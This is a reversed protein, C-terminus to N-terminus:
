ALASCPSLRARFEAFDGGDLFSQVDDITDTSSIPIMLAAGVGEVASDILRPGLFLDCRLSRAVNVMRM